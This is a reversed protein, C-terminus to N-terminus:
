SVNPYAQISFRNDAQPGAIVEGTDENILWYETANTAHVVLEISAGAASIESGTSPRAEVSNCVTLLPISGSASDKRSCCGNGCVNQRMEATMRLEYEHGDAPLKFDYTLFLVGQERPNNSLKREFTEVTRGTPDVVEVSVTLNQKDHGTSIPDRGPWASWAVGALTDGCRAVQVRAWNDERGVDGYRGDAAPIPLCDGGASALSRATLGSHSAGQDYIPYLLQGDPGFIPTHDNDPDGGDLRVPESQAVPEAGAALAATASVGFVIISLLALVMLRTSLHKKM